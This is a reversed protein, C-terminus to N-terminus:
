GNRSKSGKIHCRPRRRRQRHLQQVACLREGETNRGSSAQIANIDDKTSVPETIVVGEVSVTEQAALIANQWAQCAPTAEKGKGAEPLVAVYFFANQGANTLASQLFNKLPSANTGLLEDLDSNVNVPLVKGKNNQANGVFLLTNEVGDPSSSFTNYQEITVSPWTM